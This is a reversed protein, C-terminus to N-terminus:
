GKHTRLERAYEVVRQHLTEPYSYGLNSAVELATEKFLTVTAFLAEWNEEVGAGAYTKELKSVIQSELKKTLGKGLAGVPRAWGCAIEFKWELMKRLFLHKM